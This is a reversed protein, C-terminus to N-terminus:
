GSITHWNNKLHFTSGRGVDHYCLKKGALNLSDALHIFSSDICHIERAGQIIGVWDLLSETKRDVCIIPLDTNASLAFNGISSESAM